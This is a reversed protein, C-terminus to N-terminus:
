SLLREESPFFYDDGSLLKLSQFIQGVTKHRSAKKLANMAQERSAFHFYDRRSPQRMCVAFVGLRFPSFSIDLKYM